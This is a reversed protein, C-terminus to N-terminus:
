EKTSNLAQNKKEWAEKISTNNSLYYVIGQELVNFVANDSVLAVIVFEEKKEVKKEEPFLIKNKDFSIKDGFEKEVYNNSSYVEISKIKSATAVDMGLVSALSEYNDERILAQLHDLIVVFSAGQFVTSSIIMRSKYVPPTAKYFLLGILIGAILFVFFLKFRRKFLSLGKRFLSVLDIEEDKDDHITQKQM